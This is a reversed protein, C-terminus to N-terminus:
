NSLPPVAKVNKTATTGLYRDTGAFAITVAYDVADLNGPPPTWDCAIDYSLRASMECNKWFVGNLSITIPLAEYIKSDAQVNRLEALILYTNGKLLPNVDVQPNAMLESIKVNKFVTAAKVITLQARRAAPPSASNGEFRAEIVYTGPELTFREFPYRNKWLAVGSLDTPAQGKKLDQDPNIAFFVTGTIPKGNPDLLTARLVIEGDYPATINDLLIKSSLKVPLQQTKVPIPQVKQAPTIQPGIVGQQTVPANTKQSKEAALVTSCFLVAAIMVTCKLINMKAGGFIIEHQEM